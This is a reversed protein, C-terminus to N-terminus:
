VHGARRAIINPNTEFLFEEEPSLTFKIRYTHNECKVIGTGKKCSLLFVKAGDSLGFSEQVSNVTSINTQRLFIITSCNTVVSKLVSNSNIKEYDQSATTLSLNYSRGLRAMFDVMKSPQPYDAVLHLEDLVFRKQRYRDKKIFKEWIWMMVVYYALHKEFGEGLKSLDFNILDSDPLHITSQGDFLGLTNGKTYMKLIIALNKAIESEETEAINNLEEVVDSITPMKKKEPTIVFAGNDARYGNVMNYLSEADESIRYKKRYVNSIAKELIVAEIGGLLQKAGGANEIMFSILTRVESIKSLLNVRGDEIENEEIDLPNLITDHYPSITINIGGLKETVAVYEGKVDCIATKINGLTVGNATLKKLTVSKGAGTEGVVFIHYNTFNDSFNNYFAPTRKESINEGIPIGNEHFLDKQIFPYTTLMSGLDFPRAMDSVYNIGLPLGSKFGDVLRNLFLQRIDFDAGWLHNKLRATQKELEKYSPAYLNIIVTTFFLKDQDSAIREKLADLISYGSSFYDVDGEYGEGLDKYLKTKLKTKVRGLIKVAEKNDVPEIHVAVDLDGFNAIRNIWGMTLNYPMGSVVFTRGYVTGNIVFHDDNKFSIYDPAINDLIDPIKLVDKFEDKYDIVFVQENDAKKVKKKFFM